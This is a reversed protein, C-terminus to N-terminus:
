EQQCIRSFGKVQEYNVSRVRVSQYIHLKSSSKATAVHMWESYKALRWYTNTGM